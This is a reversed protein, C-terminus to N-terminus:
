RDPSATPLAASASAPASAPRRPATRGLQHVPRLHHRDRTQGPTGINPNIETIVPTGATVAFANNLTLTQGSTTVSVYTNGVSANSPITINATLQTLSNVTVFNTTIGDGFSM